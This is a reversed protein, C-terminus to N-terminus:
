KRKNAADKAKAEAAERAKRETESERFDKVDLVDSIGLVAFEKVACERYEKFEKECGLKTAGKLFDNVYWKTFCAEYKLKLVPCLSAIHPPEEEGAPKDASM